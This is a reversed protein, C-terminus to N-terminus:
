APNEEDYLSALVAVAAAAAPEPWTLAGAAPQCGHQGRRAGRKGAHFGHGDPGHQRDAPDGADAPHRHVEYHTQPDRPLEFKQGQRLSMEPGNEGFTVIAAADPSNTPMSKVLVVKQGTQVHSLTLESVDLPRGTDKESIGRRRVRSVVYPLDGVREGTNLSLTKPAPAPQGEAPKEHVSVRVKKGEVGDFVVPFAEGDVRKMRLKTHYPPHSNPDNPNTGAALEEDNTFGDGDDDQGLTRRSCPSRNSATKSSGPASWRSAPPMPRPRRITRTAPSAGPATAPRRLRPLPLPPRVTPRSRRARALGRSFRRRRSAAAAPAGGPTRNDILKALDPHGRQLALISASAGEANVLRPDAGRELLLSVADTNGATAAYMLATQGKESPPISAERRPRAPRPMLDRKGLLSSVALARDLQGDRKLQDASTKLLVDAVDKYGTYVAKMLPTWNSRDKVRPDANGEILARVTDPHDKAAALLLATAGEKNQLDPKANEDLLSKVVPTNGAEAAAMLASYGRSDQSNRDMGARLFAATMAQDGSAATKVFDDATFSHNAQKLETRARTADAAGAAPWCCSRGGCGGAVPLRRLLLHRSHRLRSSRPAGSRPLLNRM